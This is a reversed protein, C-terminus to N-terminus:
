QSLTKASSGIQFKSPEEVPWALPSLLSTYMFTHPRIDQGVRANGQLRHAKEIIRETAAIILEHQALREVRLHLRRTLANEYMKEQPRIDASVLWRAM